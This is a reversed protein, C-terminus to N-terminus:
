ENNRPLNVDTSGDVEWDAVEADLKVSTMGLILKLNYAKNNTLSPITVTKKIVNEVESYGTAVKDDKTIVDYTITVQLETNAHGPIVMFYKDNAIVPLETNKVGTWDGTQNWTTSADTKYAINPNLESPSDDYAVSASFLGDTNSWLSQFATTNKLNLAGSTKLKKTATVEEIAVSKVAIKTQNNLTGGAAIQDAAYIVTMGIRALAHQFLFKIKQDKAPKILDVLPMGEAITLTASPGAAYQPNVTEYSLGGVPAVGWLLDVSEAPKTAVNYRVWPDNGTADNAIVAEIGGGNATIKSDDITPAASYTPGTLQGTYTSTAEAVYPAYAFFSLKDAHTSTAAPSQSDNDTENPWYKLPSYTWASADYSVHQNWMFNSPSTTNAYAGDTTSTGNSYQAFVGFGKGATQLTATTQVGADGARTANPVYTDFSVAQNVAVTKAGNAQVADDDSSCATLSLVAAAAAFLYFKKNM